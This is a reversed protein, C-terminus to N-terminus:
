STTTLHGAAIARRIRAQLTDPDWQIEWGTWPGEGTLEEIWHEESFIQWLWDAWSPHLPLPTRADLLSFFRSTAHAAQSLPLLLTFAPATGHALASTPFLLGHLQGSPLKKALTHHHKGPDISQWSHWRWPTSSQGDGDSDSTGDERVYCSLDRGALAAALLARVAEQPGAISLLALRTDSNLYANVIAHIGNHELRLM